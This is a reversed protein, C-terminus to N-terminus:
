YGMMKYCQERLRHMMLMGTDVRPEQRIMKDVVGQLLDCFELEIKAMFIEIRM